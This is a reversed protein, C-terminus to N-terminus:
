HIVAAFGRGLLDSPMIASLHTQSLYNTFARNRSSHSGSVRSKAPMQQGTSAPSHDPVGHVLPRELPFLCPWPRHCPVSLCLHPQWVGAFRRQSMLWRLYPRGSTRPRWPGGGTASYPRNTSVDVAGAMPMLRHPRRTGGSAPTFRLPWDRPCPSNHSHGLRRNATPSTM